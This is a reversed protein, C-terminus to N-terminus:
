IPLNPRIAATVEPSNIQKKILMILDYHLM